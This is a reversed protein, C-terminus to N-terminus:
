ADVESWWDLSRSPRRQRRHPDPTLAFDSIPLPGAVERRAVHLYGNPDPVIRWRVLSLADNALELGTIYGPFVCSGCNFYPADGGIPFRERHTHGCILAIGHCRIWKVFNREVKHRKFSNRVPSSPSRIGLAHLHRWFMRLAFMSFRWAQDNAFDGQHGHVTLIEQGTSKHRLLVAEHVRLGDLFPELRGSLQDRLYHLHAVVFNQDSLQMDHNGFIRLYRGAAHFARLPEFALYQARAIHKFKPWEWIDDNDGAELLTFGEDYYHTLAAAFIQRNKAFEDSVSGDGRHSDSFFVFKSSSDFEIVHAGEYAATLRRMTHM